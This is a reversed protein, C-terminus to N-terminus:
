CSRALVRSANCTIAVNQKRASCQRAYWDAAENFPEGAHATVQEIGILKHRALAQRLSVWLDPNTDLMSHNRLRNIGNIVYMSDTFLLVNCGTTLCNMGGIVASVEMRNNTSRDKDFGGVVRAHENYIIIAAWGGPGPNPKCSGDTYMYVKKTM